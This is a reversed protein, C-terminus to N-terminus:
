SIILSRFKNIRKNLYSKIQNNGYKSFIFVIGVSAIIFTLLILGILYTQKSLFTFYISVFILQIITTAFGLKWFTKIKIPRNHQEALNFVLVNDGLPTLNDGWNAGFALAYYYSNNGSSMMGIVPLLVKTIPINDILASLFAGMWIIMILQFVPNSSGLGKLVNGILDVVGVVELGGAIVFIGLLYLILEIDIKKMIEKPKLGNFASFITLIMAISIAIIDPTLKDSNVSVLLMILLVLSSISAYLLRKSPVFNWVNFEELTDVMRKRPERLEQRYLFLFFGITIVAMFLSFLGVNVFFENFSIGSSSVILINPISSISFFTGGINVMIAETIIYPTPDINLIRSITITLPILIMVTLINNILASFVVSITALIAMLAIPKGKSLKIALIGLLQFLGAEDSIQVIFMMGLILILSHLNVFNDSPTGFLLDVIVDFEKGEIFVLVFYTIVAATLSAIARNLKNTFLLIIVAVFCLSIIIQGALM